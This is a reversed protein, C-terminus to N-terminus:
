ASGRGAGSGATCTSSSSPWDAPSTARAPRQGDSGSRRRALLPDGRALCIAAAPLGGDSVGGSGPGAHDRRGGAGPRADPRRARGPGAVGLAAGAPHPGLREAGGHRAPRRGARGAPLGDGVATGPPVASPGGPGRHPGVGLRAPPGPGLDEAGRGALPIDSGSGHVGAGECTRISATTAIGMPGTRVAPGYWFAPSRPLATSPATRRLSDGYRSESTAWCSRSRSSTTPGWSRPAASRLPLDM